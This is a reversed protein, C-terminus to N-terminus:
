TKSRFLLFFFFDQQGGGHQVVYFSICLFCRVEDVVMIAKHELIYREEDIVDIKAHLEKCLEQQCFFFMSFSQIELFIKQFYYCGFQVQLEEKSSPYSLPPCSEEMYRKREEKKEIQEAELLDKAVVLMMSKLCIHNMSFGLKSM